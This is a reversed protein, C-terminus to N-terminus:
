GMWAANNGLTQAFSARYGGPPSPPVKGGMEALKADIQARMDDPVARRFNARMESTVTLAKGDTRLAHGPQNHPVDCAIEGRKRLKQVAEKVKAVEAGTKRAIETITMGPQFVLRVRARLPANQDTAYLIKKPANKPKTM